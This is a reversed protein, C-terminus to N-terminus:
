GGATELLSLKTLYRGYLDSINLGNSVCHNNTGLTGHGSYEPRKDVQTDM